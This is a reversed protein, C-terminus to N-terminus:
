LFFWFGFHMNARQIMAIHPAVSFYFCFELDGLQSFSGEGPWTSRLTVEFVSDQGQSSPLDSVSQIGVGGSVALLTEEKLAFCVRARGFSEVVSVLWRGSM